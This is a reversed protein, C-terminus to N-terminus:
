LSEKSPFSKGLIIAVKDRWFSEDSRIGKNLAGMKQVFPRTRLDKRFLKYFDINRINCGRASYWINTKQVETEGVVGFLFSPYMFKAFGKM